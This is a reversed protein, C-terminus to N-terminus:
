ALASIWEPRPRILGIAEPNDEGFFLSVYTVFSIQAKANRVLDMWVNPPVQARHVYLNIVENASDSAKSDLNPWLYNAPVGLLRAARHATNPHPTRDKTVWRQVTKPDVGLEEGLLEETYGSTRMTSRLRENTM